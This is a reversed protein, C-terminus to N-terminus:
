FDSQLKQNCVPCLRKANKLNKLKRELRRADSVWQGGKWTRVVKYDIGLENAHKLLKAGRGSKHTRVRDPLNATFGIYHQAHYIPRDLHILYITFNM